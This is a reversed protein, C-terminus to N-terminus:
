CLVCCRKKNWNQVLDLNQDPKVIYYNQKEDLVTGEFTEETDTPFFRVRVEHSYANNSADIANLAKQQKDLSERTKPM